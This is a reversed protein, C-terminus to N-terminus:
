GVALLAEEYSRVVTAREGIENWLATAEGGTFDREGISHEEVVLVPVGSAAADRVLRLNPLNAPGYPADCL